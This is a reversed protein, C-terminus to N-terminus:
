AHPSKRRVVAVNEEMGEKKLNSKNHWKPCKKM